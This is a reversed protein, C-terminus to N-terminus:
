MCSTTEISQVSLCVSFCVNLLWHLLWSDKEFRLMRQLRPYMGLCCSHAQCVAVVVVYIFVCVSVTRTCPCLCMCLWVQQLSLITEPRRSRASPLCVCVRVRIRVRVSACACCSRSSHFSREEGGAERQLCSSTRIQHKCSYPAQDHIHIQREQVFGRKCDTKFGALHTSLAGLCTHACYKRQRSPRPARQRSYRSSCSTFDHLFLTQLM